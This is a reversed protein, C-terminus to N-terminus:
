VPTPIKLRATRRTWSLGAGLAFVFLQLRINVWIPIQSYHLLVLVGMGVGVVSMYCGLLYINAVLRSAPNERCARLIAILVATLYLTVAGLEAWYPYMAFEPPVLVLDGINSRGGGGWIFLALSTPFYVTSVAGVYCRVLRVRVGESLKLRLLGMAIFGMLAGVSLNHGLYEELNWVRFVAHLYPSIALGLRPTMVLVNLSLFLISITAPMDWKSPWTDRRVWLCWVATLLPVCTLLIM